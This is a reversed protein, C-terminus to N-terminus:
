GCSVDTPKWKRSDGSAAYTATCVTITKSLSRSQKTTGYNCVLTIKEGPQFTWTNVLKGDAEESKDPALTANDSVAGSYFDLGRLYTPIGSLPRFGECVTRMKTEASAVSPVAAPVTSLVLAAALVTRLIM